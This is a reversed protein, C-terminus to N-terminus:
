SDSLQQLTNIYLELKQLNEDNKEWILLQDNSTETFGVDRLIMSCLIYDNFKQSLVNMDISNYGDDDEDPNHVANQLIELLIARDKNNHMSLDMIELSQHNIWTDVKPREEINNVYHEDSSIKVDDIDQIDQMDTDNNNNENSKSPIFKIVDSQNSKAIHKSPSVGM